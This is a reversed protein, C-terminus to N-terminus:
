DFAGIATIGGDGIEFVETSLPYPSTAFEKVVVRGVRELFTTHRADWFYLFDRDPMVAHLPWGLVPSVVERLNPALTLVSKFPIVTIAYGLRVGDIDNYEITADALAAAVNRWATTEVDDLTVQWEELMGPTIWHMGGRSDDIHVPVRDVRKSIPTRFPPPEAYDSPELCFLVSTRAQKWPELPGGTSLVADIFHSVHASDPDHLYMRALNDLSVFLRGGLHRIVYCGTEDDFRFAVGRRELEREFIRAVADSV